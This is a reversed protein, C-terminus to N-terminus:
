MIHGNYKRTTVFLNTLGTPFCVALVAFVSPKKIIAFLLSSIFVGAGILLMSQGIKKCFVNVDKDRVHIRHYEHILSIKKALWIFIGVFMIAVGTLLVFIMTVLVLAPM